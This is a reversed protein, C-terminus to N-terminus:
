VRKVYKSSISIWGAGSKLKGWNGSTAVITYVTGKLAGNKIVIDGNPSKRINLNDLCKVKFIEKTSKPATKNENLAFVKAIEKAINAKNANYIKMDDADDIFCIELLSSRAGANHAKNIVSWNLRKVGRNHLGFKAVSDTLSKEIDTDSQSNVVFIETGTTKGDGTIDNVCSNFHIELVYDYKSFNVKLCGNKFDKFANRDTPYLDVDAYKKLEKEILKVMTITETAEKYKVGKITACAGSDGAGHGSILLIKMKDGKKLWWM